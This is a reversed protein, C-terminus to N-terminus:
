QITLSPNLQFCNSKSRPASQTKIGGAIHGQNRVGGSKEIGRDEGNRSFYTKSWGANGQGEVHELRVTWHGGRPACVELVKKVGREPKNEGREPKNKRKINTNSLCLQEKMM